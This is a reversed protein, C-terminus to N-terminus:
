LSDRGQRGHGHMHKVRLVCIYIGYTWRIKTHARMHLRHVNMRCMGMESESYSARIFLHDRDTTYINHAVLLEM